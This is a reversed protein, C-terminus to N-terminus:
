DLTTTPEGAVYKGTKYDMKPNYYGYQDISTPAPLVPMTNIVERGNKDITTASTNKQTSVKPKYIGTGTYTQVPLTANPLLVGSGISNAQAVNPKLFYPINNNSSVSKKPTTQKNWNTRLELIENFEQDSVYQNDSGRRDHTIGPKLIRPNGKYDKVVEYQTVPIGGITPVPIDLKTIQSNFLSM